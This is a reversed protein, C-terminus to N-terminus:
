ASAADLAALAASEWHSRSDAMDRVLDAMHIRGDRLVALLATATTVGSRICALQLAANVKLDGRLDRLTAGLLTTLLMLDAFLRAGAEHSLGRREIQRRLGAYSDVDLMDLLAAAYATRFESLSPQSSTRRAAPSSTTTIATTTM